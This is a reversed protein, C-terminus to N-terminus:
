FKTAQSASRSILKRRWVIIKQMNTNFLNISYYLFNILSTNWSHNKNIKAKYDKINKVREALSYIVIKSLGIITRCAEKVTIKQDILINLLNLITETTIKNEIKLGSLLIDKSPLTPIMFRIDDEFEEFIEYTVIQKVLLNLQNDM